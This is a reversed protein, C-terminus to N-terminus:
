LGEAGRTMTDTFDRRIPLLSHPDRGLRITEELRHIEVSVAGLTLGRGELSRLTDLGRNEEMEYVGLRDFLFSLDEPLIRAQEAGLPDRRGRTARTPDNRHWRVGAATVGQVLAYRDVLGFLHLMEHGLVHGLTVHAPPISMVGGDCSSDTVSTPAGAPVPPLTCGPYAAPARDTPRVTILWYNQDRAATPSVPTLEPEIALRRGAFVEGRLEQNWVLDIGQQLGARLDALRNALRPDEFRVHFRIRIRVEQETVQIDLPLRNLRALNREEERIRSGPSVAEGIDTGERDMRSRSELLPTRERATRLRRAERVQWEGVYRELLRLRRRAREVVMRDYPTSARPDAQRQLGPMGEQRGSIAANGIPMSGHGTLSDAVRNAEAECADDQDGVALKPQVTAPTGPPTLGLLDVRGQFYALAFSSLGGRMLYTAVYSFEASYTGTNLRFNPDSSLQQNVAHRALFEAGGEMLQQRLPSANAASRYRESVYYHMAEHIVVHGMNRSQSPIDVHPEVHGSVVPFSTQGGIRTREYERVFSLGRLRLLPAAIESQLASHDPDDVCLSRLQDSAVELAVAGIRRRASADDPIRLESFAQPTRTSVSQPAAFNRGQPLLGGFEARIARDAQAIMSQSSPITQGALSRGINIERQMEAETQSAFNAARIDRLVDASPPCTTPAATEPRPVPPPSISPARPVHPRLRPVFSRARELAAGGTELRGAPITGTQRRIGPAQQVVHTLEHALLRKGLATSPSYQGPAFVLHKGVTYALANVARASAAAKADNHVRVQSFDHGFRPEFFARTAPDLPQGASRLVEHISPPAPERAGGLTGASPIASRQLALSSNAYKFRVRDGVRDKGGATQRQPSRDGVFASSSRPRFSSAQLPAAVSMTRNGPEHRPGGAGGGLVPASRTQQLRTRSRM